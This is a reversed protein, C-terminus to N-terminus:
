EWYGVVRKDVSADEWPAHGGVLFARSLGHNFVRCCIEPAHLCGACAGHHDLCDPDFLCTMAEDALSELFEYFTSRLLTEMSGMRFTSNNAYVVTGLLPLFLYESISTRELGAAQSVVRMVGHSLSHVLGFVLRRVPLDRITDYYRDVPECAELIRVIAPRGDDDLCVGNRALWNLVRDADLGLFLGEHEGERALIPVTGAANPKGLRKAAFGDLAFFPRLQTPLYSGDYEEYKPEFSRRTYGFTATIVPLDEVLRTPRLGLDLHRQM